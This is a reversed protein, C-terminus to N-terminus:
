RGRQRHRRPTRAAATSNAPAVSWTNRCWLTPLLDIRATATGRNTVTVRMLIDDPTTKAYEITVDFYRDGDFAGRRNIRIRPRQAFAACERGRAPCVPFATQPYKYVMSCTPTRQRTTSTPLLVGQRRRRSQRRARVSRLATRQSDPRPREVPHRALCLRQHNDSIGGIGDEGWRYARSRAHDHPLYAWAGGDPSYDERVTGWQREALYPGWRYWHERHMRARALREREANMRYDSKACSKSSAAATHSCISCSTSGNLDPSATRSSSRRGARGRRKRAAGLDSM